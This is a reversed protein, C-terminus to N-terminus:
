GNNDGKSLENIMARAYKRAQIIETYDTDIEENLYLAESVKYAVYDTQVLFTRYYDMEGFPYESIPPLHFRAALEIPITNM